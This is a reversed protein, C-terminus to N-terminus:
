CVQVSAGLRIIGDLVDLIAELRRRLDLLPAASSDRYLHVDDGEGADAAGGFRVSLPAASGCFVCVLLGEVWSLVGIRCQSVWLWARSVDCADLSEDLAVADDWSMFQLRDDHVEWVRQVEM